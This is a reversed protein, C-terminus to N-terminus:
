ADACKVRSGPSTMRVPVGAPTPGTWGPCRTETVMSPMPVRSLGNTRLHSLRSQRSSQVAPSEALEEASDETLRRYDDISLLVYASESRDTVVM